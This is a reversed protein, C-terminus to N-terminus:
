EAGIFEAAIKEAAAVVPFHLNGRPGTPFISADVVLLGDLGRVRAHADVVAMPDDAPGMRCTSSPHFTTGVQSRIKRRARGPEVLDLHQRPAAARNGGLPGTRVLRISWSWATPWRQWIPRIASIPTTSRWRRTPIASTLRLRGLALPCIAALDLALAAMAASEEHFSQGQYVHLDIEDDVQGSRAKIMVPMFTVAQPEAGPAIACEMLGNVLPHDM